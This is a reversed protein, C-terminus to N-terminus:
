KLNMISKELTLRIPIDTSLNLIRKQPFLKLLSAISCIHDSKTKKLNTHQNVMQLKDKINEDQPIIM